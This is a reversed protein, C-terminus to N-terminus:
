ADAAHGAAHGARARGFCLGCTTPILIPLRRRRPAAPSLSRQSRVTFVDRSSGPLCYREFDTAIILPWSRPLHQCTNVTIVWLEGAALHFMGKMLLFPASSLRTGPPGPGPGPQGATTPASWSQLEERILSDDEKSLVEARDDGGAVPEPEVCARHVAAAAESAPPGAPARQQHQRLVFM